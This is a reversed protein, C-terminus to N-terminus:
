GRMGTVMSQYVAASANLRAPTQPCRANHPRDYSKERGVGTEYTGTWKGPSADLGDAANPPSGSPVVSFFFITNLRQMRSAPVFIQVDSAEGPLMGM